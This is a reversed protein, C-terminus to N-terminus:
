MITLTGKCVIVRKTNTTSPELKSDKTRNKTPCPPILHNIVVVVVRGQGVIICPTTPPLQFPSYHVKKREIKNTSAITAGPSFKLSFALSLIQLLCNSKILIEVLIRSM